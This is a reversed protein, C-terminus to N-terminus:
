EKRFQIVSSGAALKGWIPVAGAFYYDVKEIFRVIKIFPGKMFRNLRSFINFYTIEFNSTMSQILLLDNKSLKKEDDTIHREFSSTNPVFKKVIDLNRIPDFLPSEIPERFIAIGGPKMVRLIEKMSSKLEVHHLIDIGVVVDFYNDEYDMHEAVQVSFHVKKEIQHIKALEDAIKINNQSIDFGFVEYGLHSLRISNDGAGCGFDLLRSARLPKAERVRQYLNWYSNWPRETEGTVPSFDIQVDPPKLEAFQDYYEKERKQRDSLNM